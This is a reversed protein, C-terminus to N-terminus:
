AEKFYSIVFQVAKEASEVSYEPYHAFNDSQIKDTRVLEHKGLMVLPKGIDLVLGTECMTGYRGDFAIVVDSSWVLVNMFALDLSTPIVYDVHENCFQKDNSKTIAITVGKHKKAGRCVAEMCGDEGGCVIALGLESLHEGVKEALILAYPNTNNLHGGIIGIMPRSDHKAKTYNFAKM